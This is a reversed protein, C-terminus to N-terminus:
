LTPLTLPATIEEDLISLPPLHDPVLEISAALLEELTPLTLPVTTEKDM